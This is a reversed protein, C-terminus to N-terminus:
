REPGSDLALTTVTTTVGQDAYVKVQGLVGEAREDTHPPAPFSPIFDYSQQSTMRTFSDDSGESTSSEVGWRDDLGLEIKM